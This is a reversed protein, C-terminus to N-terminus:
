FYNEDWALRRRTFITIHKNISIMNAKTLMWEVCMNPLAASTFRRPKQWHSCYVYAIGSERDTIIQSIEHQQFPRSGTNYVSQGYLRFRNLKVKMKYNDVRM